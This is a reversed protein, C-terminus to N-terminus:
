EPLLARAWGGVRRRLKNFDISPMSPVVRIFRGEAANERLAWDLLGVATAHAPTDLSDVLGSFRGPVGVRAPINLVKEALDPLGRLNATGGTIVIGASLTDEFGARRVEMFVMELIEEARAQIIESIQRTSVVKIRDSGFADIDVTEDTVASALAHGRLRKLAEASSFPVRLGVVLDRTIHTGGVPLVSTHIVSGESFIAIGTTGGGIDALVVGQEREEEDLVALADALPSLVLADLHVGAGEVCKTLNQVASISGTIVHTEVDLRQGYMGVPDSVNDQGDVMYYRPLAHLTERNTPISVTRAAELVRELDDAGIPRDRNPVAIIGRSNMSSVHAGAISVYASYIRTGSAREAKEVSQRISETAEYINDVMGRTIGASPTVGVGLIRPQPGLSLDGVVTCIKTSGVDIAAFTTADRKM